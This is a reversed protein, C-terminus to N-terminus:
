RRADRAGFIADLVSEIAERQRRAAANRCDAPTQMPSGCLSRNHLSQILYIRDRHKQDHSIVILGGQPGEPPRRNRDGPFPLPRDIARFAPGRQLADSAPSDMM